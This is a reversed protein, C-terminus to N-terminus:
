SNAEYETSYCGAQLHPSTISGGEPNQATMPTPSSTTNGTSTQEKRGGEEPFSPERLRNTNAQPRNINGDQLRGGKQRRARTSSGEFGTAGPDVM